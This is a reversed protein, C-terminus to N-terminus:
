ESATPALSAIFGGDEFELLFAELTSGFHRVFFVFCFLFYFSIRLVCVNRGIKYNVAFPNRELLSYCM